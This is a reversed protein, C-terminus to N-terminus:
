TRELVLWGVKANRPLVSGRWGEPPPPTTENMFCGITVFQDALECWLPLSELAETITQTWPDVTVVDWRELGSNDRAFEWADMCYFSWGDPYLDAMEWLKEQDTDVCTVTMDANALHIVDNWGWFGASFIALGTGHHPLLHSPYGARAQQRLDQFTAPREIVDGM